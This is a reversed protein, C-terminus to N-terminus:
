NMETIIGCVAQQRETIKAIDILNYMPMVVDLGEANDTLTNNVKSICSILPANNKFALLRNKRSSNSGGAVTVEGKVVICADSFHCLDSRLM